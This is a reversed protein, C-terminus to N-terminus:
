NEVKVMVLHDSDTPHLRKKRRCIPLACRLSFFYVIEAASLFSFGTCLGVLGGFAALIDQWSFLEDTIYRSMKLDAFYVHVLSLDQNGDIKSYKSAKNPFKASSSTSTYRTKSCAPPCPCEAGLAQDFNVSRISDLLDSANALCQLGDWDCTTM